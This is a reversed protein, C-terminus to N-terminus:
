KKSKKEKQRIDALKTISNGIQKIPIDLPIKSFERVRSMNTQKQYLIVGICVSDKYLSRMKEIIGVVTKGSEILDDIIIYRAAIHGLSVGPELLRSSHAQEDEKGKRIIGCPIGSQISVAVMPLTGSLGTGVLFDVGHFEPDSLTQCITDITEKKHNFIYSFYCM